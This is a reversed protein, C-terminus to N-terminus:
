QSGYKQELQNQYSLSRCIEGSTNHKNNNSNNDGTVAASFLSFPRKMM